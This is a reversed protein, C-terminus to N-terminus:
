FNVDRHDLNTIFRMCPYPLRHLAYANLRIRVHPAQGKLILVSHDLDAFRPIGDNLLAVGVENQEHAVIIDEIHVQDLAQDIVENVQALILRVHYMDCRETRQQVILASLYCVVLHVMCAHIESLEEDIMREILLYLDIYALVLESRDCLYRTHGPLRHGNPDRMIESVYVTLM